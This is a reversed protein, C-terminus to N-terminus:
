KGGRVKREKTVNIYVTKKRKTCFDQEQILKEAVM